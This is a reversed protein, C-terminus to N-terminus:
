HDLISYDNDVKEEWITEWIDQKTERPIELVEEERSDINVRLTLTVLIKSFAEKTTSPRKHSSDNIHLNLKMVM